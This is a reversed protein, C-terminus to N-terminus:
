LEHSVRPGKDEAERQLQSERRQAGLADKAAELEIDAQSMSSIEDRSWMKFKQGTEAQMKEVRDEAEVEKPDRMWFPEDVWDKIPAPKKSCVKKCVKKKLESKGKGSMLVSVMTEEKNKLISACARQIALCESKCKGINSQRELTLPGGSGRRVVDYHATWKGEKKKITCLGDVLDALSDEDKSKSEEAHSVAHEMALECVQCKVHEVVDKSVEAASLWCATLFAAIALRPARLGALGGM